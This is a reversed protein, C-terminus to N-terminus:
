KSESKETNKKKFYPKYVETIEGNEDLVWIRQLIERAEDKTYNKIPERIINEMVAYANLMKDGKLVYNAVLTNIDRVMM